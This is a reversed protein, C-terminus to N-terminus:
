AATTIRPTTPRTPAHAATILTHATAHDIVRTGRHDVLRHLGHPTTWLYVGPGLQRLRWGRAHTKVRHHYRGLPATNDTSTQDPPGHPDYAQVHDLDHTGHTGHTTTAHPFVDGPNTLLVQHKLREPHHYGAASTTERLDIVQTSTVRADTLWDRIQSTPIPGIGEVRAVTDLSGGLAAENLHIFIRTRPRARALDTSTLLDLLRGTTHEGLGDHSLPGSPQDPDPQNPDPQDPATHQAQLLLQLAEAPRALWGLARSRVVPKPDTDGRSILIDAIRDVMADIWVADGAEVRAILHRLGNEDTRGLAVYRRRREAERRARDAEPDAEIVKAQCLEILRAPSEGAVFPALATDVLAAGAPDLRRTLTAIRCAVWVTVERALVQAWIHPLRHRLDLADALKKRASLTHVQWAVALEAICLDQVWPTGEGGVPVLRDAVDWIRRGQPGKRPDAAHQDAWHCALELERVEADRRVDVAAELAALTSAADLSDIDTFDM